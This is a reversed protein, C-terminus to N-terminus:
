LLVPPLYTNTKTQKYVYVDLVQPEGLVRQVLTDLAQRRTKIFDSSFNNGFLKKGPLKLHLHPYLKKLQSVPTSLFFFFPNALIHAALLSFPRRVLDCLKSFENYRRHIIWTHSDYKVVIKYVTYKKNQEWVESSVVNATIAMFSQVIPFLRLSRAFSLLVLFFNVPFSVPGTPSPQHPHQQCSPATFSLQHGSTTAQQSPSVLACQASQRPSPSLCM